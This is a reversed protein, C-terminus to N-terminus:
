KHFLERKTLILNVPSAETIDNILHELNLFKFFLVGHLLSGLRIQFEEISSFIVGFILQSHNLVQSLSEVLETHGGSQVELVEELIPVSMSMLLHAWFLESLDQSSDVEMKRIFFKIANNLNVSVVRLLLNSIGVKDLIALVLLLIFLSLHLSIDCRGLFGLHIFFNEKGLHFFADLDVIQSDMFLEDIEVRKSFTITSGIFESAHKRLESDFQFRLFVIIKLGKVSMFSILGFHVPM